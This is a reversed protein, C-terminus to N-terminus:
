SGAYTGGLAARVQLVHEDLHTLVLVDLMGSVTMEGRLPHLGVRRWDAGPLEPLRRAYRDISGHIRALLESTTRWRDREIAGIRQADGTSRGMPVPGAEAGSGGGAAIVRNMQDLWYEVMEAVHALIEPPGWESEPGKGALPGTPWPRGADIATAMGDLSSAAASMRAIVRPVDVADLPEMM